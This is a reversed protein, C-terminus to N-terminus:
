LSCAIPDASRPLSLSGASWVRPCILDLDLHKSRPDPVPRPCLPWESDANLSASPSALVIDFSRDGTQGAAPRIKGSAGRSM